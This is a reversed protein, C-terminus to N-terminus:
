NVPIRQSREGRWPDVVLVGFSLLYFALTLRPQDFTSVTIGTVVFGILSALYIASLPDDRGIQGVLRALTVLLFLAVAILGFWGQDFLINVALNATHWQWHGDESFFWRDSGQAFDGNRLLEHGQADRLSLDTVDISTSPAGSAYLIFKTPREFFLGAVHRGSGVEGTRITTTWTQWQGGPARVTTSNNTCSASTLMWVECWIISVSSHPDLSRLKMSFSYDSHQTATVIQDTYLALSPWLRLYHGEPTSVFEYHTARPEIISRQQHLAPFSGVGMGFAKALFTHDRLSLDYRWYHLRTEADQKSESFRQGISTQALFPLAIIGALTTVTVGLLLAAAARRRHSRTALLGLLGIGTGAAVAVVPGRSQAAILTYVSLAALGATLPALRRWKPHILLLGVFPISMALWVDIPGDGTHMSSFSATTRYTTVWTLLGTFLWREYVTALAVGLLGLLFGYGLLLKAQGHQAIAQRLPQLLLLAEVFGKAVRLSNYPSDYDAFSNVTIPPLPWVRMAVGIVYSVLLVPLLWLLGRSIAAPPGADRLALVGVTLLIAADFEDFFFRGSWSALDFVPLLAPVVVLWLWPWRWLCVAYVIAAAALELQLIPFGAVFWAVLGILIMGYALKPIRLLSHNM